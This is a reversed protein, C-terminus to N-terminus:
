LGDVVEVPIGLREAEQMLWEVTGDESGNDVIYHDFPMGANQWLSSFCDQTYQLRDRTLTYIAIKM